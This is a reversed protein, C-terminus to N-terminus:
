WRPGFIRVFRYAIWSRYKSVQAARMLDYLLIDADVRKTQLFAFSNIKGKMRYLYDHCLAAARIQGDPTLGSLTWALRPVSAGDSKFGAPVTLAVDAGNDARLVVTYDKQNKYRLRSVPRIDPQHEDSLKGPFGPYIGLTYRM